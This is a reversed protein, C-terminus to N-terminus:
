KKMRRKAALGGLGFVMGIVMMSPEPVPQVMAVRFFLRINKVANMIALHDSAIREPTDAITLLYDCDRATAEFFKEDDPDEGPIWLPDL